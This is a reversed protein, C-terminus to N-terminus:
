RHINLFSLTKRGKSIAYRMNDPRTRQEKFKMINTTQNGFLNDYFEKWVFQCRSACRANANTMMSTVMHSRDDIIFIVINNQNHKHTTVTQWQQSLHMECLFRRCCFWIASSWEYLSTKYNWVLKAIKIAIILGVYYIIGDIYIYWHRIQKNKPKISLWDLCPWDCSMYYKMWKTKATNLM